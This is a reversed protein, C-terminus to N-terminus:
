YVVILLVGLDLSLEMIGCCYLMQFINIQHEYLYVILQYLGIVLFLLLLKYGILAFDKSYPM